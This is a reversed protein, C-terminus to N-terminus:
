EGLDISMQNEGCFLPFTAQAILDAGVKVRVHASREISQPADGDLDIGLHVMNM